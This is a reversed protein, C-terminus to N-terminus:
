LGQKICYVIMAIIKVLEEEQVAALQCQKGDPTAAEILVDSSRTNGPETLADISSCAKSFGM